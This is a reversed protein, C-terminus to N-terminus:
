SEGDMLVILQKLLSKRLGKSLHPDACREIISDFIENFAQKEYEKERTAEAIGIDRLWTSWSKYGASDAVQQFLGRETDSLRVM